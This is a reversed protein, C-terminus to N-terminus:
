HGRLEPKAALAIRGVLRLRRAPGEGVPVAVVGGLGENALFEVPVKAAPRRRSGGGRMLLEKVPGAAPWLARLEAEAALVDLAVRRLLLLEVVDTRAAVAPVQLVGDALLVERRPRRRRPVAEADRIALVVVIEVVSRLLTRHHKRGPSTENLGPSAVVALDKLLRVKASVYETSM